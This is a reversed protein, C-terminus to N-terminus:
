KAKAVGVLAPRLIRDKIKYGAQMVQAVKGEEVESTEIQTIANHFNPDFEENVPFIRELGNKDFVKKLENQTLKIGDFFSKVKKPDNIEEERINNFALYFNEMVPILDEAFKSIAYKATKENEETARRRTNELEALVRLFDEKIKKNEEELKKVNALIPDEEVTEKKESSSNKDLEEQISQKQNLNNKLEEFNEEKKNNAM